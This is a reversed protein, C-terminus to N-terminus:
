PASWPSDTNSLLAGATVASAFRWPARPGLRTVAARGAAAIAEVADAFPSGTAVLAGLEPDLAHAWRTFCARIAEAWAAFRRLWGRVTTEPVGVMAAIVRHGRGTAKAVLARGIVEVEDRRRRLSDEAVLVHTVLCRRCRSRRPRRRVVGDVMRLVRERAHGWPRLVGRCASCDLHGAVLAREVEAPDTGVILVPAEPVEPLARGIDPLVFRSPGQAVLVDERQRRTVADALAAPSVM